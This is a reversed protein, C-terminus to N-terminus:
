RVEQMLEDAGTPLDLGSGIWFAAFIMLFLALAGAVDEFRIDLGCRDARPSFARVPSEDAVPKGPLVADQQVARLPRHFRTM